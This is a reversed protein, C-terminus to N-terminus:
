KYGGCVPLSTMLSIGSLQDDRADSAVIGHETASEAFGLLRLREGVL